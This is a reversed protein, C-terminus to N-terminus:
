LLYIKTVIFLTERNHHLSYPARIINKVIRFIREREGLSKFWKMKFAYPTLLKFNESALPHLFQFFPLHSPPPPFKQSYEVDHDKM